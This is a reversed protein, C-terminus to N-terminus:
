KEEGKGKNFIKDKLRQILSKTNEGNIKEVTGSINGKVPENNSDYIINGNKDKIKYKLEEPRVYLGKDDLKFNINYNKM